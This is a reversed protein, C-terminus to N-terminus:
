TGLSSSVGILRGREGGWIEEKAVLKGVGQPKIGRRFTAFVDGEELTGGKKERGELSGGEV